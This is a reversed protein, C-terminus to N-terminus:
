VKESGSEAFIVKFCRRCFKFEGEDTVVPVIKGEIDRACNDCKTM